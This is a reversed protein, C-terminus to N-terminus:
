RGVARNLRASAVRVAALASTRDLGAHLLATEADLLDSSPIVGAHYRESAVRQNERASALNRGAVSVAARATDLDLLRQTVELRIKRDVDELRSRLAAAQEAQETVAARTRGGDFFRYGVLVSADWTDNWEDTLPLIRRNPRAYDYGANFRVQPLRDARA